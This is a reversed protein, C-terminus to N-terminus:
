YYEQMFFDFNHSGLITRHRQDGLLATSMKKRKQHLKIKKKKSLLLPLDSAGFLAPLM